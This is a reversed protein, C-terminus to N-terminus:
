SVHNNPHSIHRERVRWVFAGIWSITALIMYVIFGLMFIQFASYKAGLLEFFICLLRYALSFIAWAILSSALLNGPSRIFRIVPLVALLGLLAAGALNRELAFRELFPVRNALIIWSFLVMSLCVGVYVGMRVALNKFVSFWAYGPLHASVSM